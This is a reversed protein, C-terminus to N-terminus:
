WLSRFLAELLLYRMTFLLSDGRMLEYVMSCADDVLLMMM